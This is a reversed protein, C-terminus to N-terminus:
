PGDPLAIPSVGSPPAVVRISRAIRTMPTIPTLPTATGARAANRALTWGRELSAVLESEELRVVTFDM